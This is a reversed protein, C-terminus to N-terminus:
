VPEFRAFRLGTGIEALANGNRVARGFRTRGDEIGAHSQHMEGVAHQPVAFVCGIQRHHNGGLGVFVQLDQLQEGTRQRFIHFVRQALRLRRVVDQVQQVGLRFAQHQM